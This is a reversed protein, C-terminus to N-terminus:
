VLAECSEINGDSDHLCLLTASCTSVKCNKEKELKSIQRIKFIDNFICGAIVGTACLNVGTIMGSIYTGESPEKSHHVCSVVYSVAGLTFITSDLILSKIWHKKDLIARSKKPTKEKAM